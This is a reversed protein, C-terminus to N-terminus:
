CITEYLDDWNPNNEEILKLKWTRKWKKIQKERRIAEEAQQHMEFYVLLKVHYKKTFGDILSNRHQWVRKVLDSTMGTYLTGNRKSALIYVYYQKEMPLGYSEPKRGM